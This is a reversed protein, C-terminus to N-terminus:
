AAHEPRTILGLDRVLTDIVERLHHPDFPKQLCPTRSSRMFELLEPSTTGGTLFATRRAQDPHRRILEAHFARGPLLPMMLDCLILDFRMGGDILALAEPSTNPCTLVHQKGLVRRLVSRIMAEDDVVLVYARAGGLTIPAEVSSPNSACAPLRVRVVTGRGAESELEIAGKMTTVIGHCISLGLGRGQGADKTTFFPELARRVVNAPMGVGTDHFEITADGEENTRLELTLQRQGHDEGSMSAAANALINVFALGLRTTEGTVVPTAEFHKVVTIFRLASSAMELAWELTERVDVRACVSPAVPSEPAPEDVAFVRLDAVIQCVRAAGQQAEILATEVGSRWDNGPLLTPESAGPRLLRLEDLVFALNAVIFALPNNVEHAIGSAITATCALRDTRDLRRQLRKQETLDQFVMVAGLVRGREDVVPSTCDSFLFERGNPTILAGEVHVPKLDRLAATVPNELSVRSHEDVLRVLEQCPQGLVEPLRVGLLREAMPNLYNVFGREDTSIVADGISSLTTTLWHERERLRTEMEHRYLALEVTSRLENPRLPKLVYGLPETAKAREVTLADAYATLYVVPVAFKEKLLAATEIGDVEGKLRIDMLVLHPCHEGALRLAQESTRATAPVQYGLDTLSRQIDRAVVSEDEVVLIRKSAKSSM